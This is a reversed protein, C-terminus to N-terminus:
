TVCWVSLAAIFVGFIALPIADAMRLHTPDTKGIRLERAILFLPFTVSIATVFALLVYVWVFRVSNKRAEAVMLIVVPLTLLFIDVTMSRSAANVKTDNFFALYLNVGSDLYAVNQSGTAVLAAIATLAYVTCLVKSSTPL